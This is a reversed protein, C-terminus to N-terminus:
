SHPLAHKARGATVQLTHRWVLRYDLGGGGTAPKVISEEAAYSSCRHSPQVTRQALGEAGVGIV